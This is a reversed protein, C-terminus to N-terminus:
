KEIRKRLNEITGVKISVQQHIRMANKIYNPQIEPELFSKEYEQVVLDIAESKHKLGYMAKVINLVQNTKEEIQIMAQVM